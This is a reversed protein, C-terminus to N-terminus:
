AVLRTVWPVVQRSASEEEVPSATQADLSAVSGGSLQVPEPLAIHAAVDRAIVEAITEGFLADTDADTRFQLTWMGGAGVAELLRDRVLGFVRDELEATNEPSMARSHKRSTAM